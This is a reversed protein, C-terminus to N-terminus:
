GAEGLDDEINPLVFAPIVDQRLPASAPAPAPPSPPAPAPAVVRLDPRRPQAGPQAPAPSLAPAAPAAAAAKNAAAAAILAAAQDPPIRRQENTRLETACTTCYRGSLPRVRHCRQCISRASM